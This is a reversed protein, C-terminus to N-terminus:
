EELKGIRPDSNPNASVSLTDIRCKKIVAGEKVEIYGGIAPYLHKRLEPPIRDSVFDLDAVVKNGEVRLKATGLHADPHNDFGHTLKVEAPVKVGAPDFVDGQSDPQDDMILVTVNKM